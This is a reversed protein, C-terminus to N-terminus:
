FALFRWGRERLVRLIGAREALKVAARHAEPLISGENVTHVRGGSLVIKGNVMVMEVNAQTSSYVLASVPHHMPVAKAAGLPNFVFLDAKKGVELSGIENELGLARAADITAMELVKEATIVTPDLNHVKQLLAAIKLTELMDNSNNSGAGDTALSVTVGAEVLRPVPAVGSCLYMNSTPNYSVRADFHKAIRIDRATLHVCHVMLLRPGMMGLEVMLNVDPIGHLDETAERDFPTESIHIMIGTDYERALEKIKLLMEKDNSWAAAPALWIKTLDDQYQRCLRRFDAEVEGPGQMIVPPVGYKEGTNMCGRGFVGRIGVTRFAELIGDSLGPRPHPYMYDVMTTTGSHLGDLCGLLAAYYTDEPELHASTPFTVYKLWDSLVRDDGLGKILTQFLHNHTNILGPFVAKGALDWVEKATGFRRLVEEKPGVAVIREGQVAVAGESYIERRSNLTVVTANLLLYDIM